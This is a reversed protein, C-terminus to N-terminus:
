LEGALDDEKYGVLEEIRRYMSIGAKWGQAKLSLMAEHEKSKRPISNQTHFGADVFRLLGGPCYQTFSAQTDGEQVPINAHTFTASPILITSGSPFEVVLRLDDLVLHGGKTHDFSGLAQIACWGFTCNKVDRHRVTWVRPGFNFAATPYVGCATICKLHCHKPHDFLKDLRKKFHSYMDPSWLRLMDEM